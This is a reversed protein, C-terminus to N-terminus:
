EKSKLYRDTWADVIDDRNLLIKSGQRIHVPLAANSEFHDIARRTLYDLSDSHIESARGFRSFRYTFREQPM